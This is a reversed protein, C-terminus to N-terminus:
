LEPLGDELMMDLAARLGLILSVAPTYATHARAQGELEKALDFYYRPQGAHGLRQQARASLAVFALGPPTVGSPHVEVSQGVKLRGGVLTGTVVTGFGRMAFVRDISLRAPGARPTRPSSESLAKRLAERLEQVGEGTVSSVPIM